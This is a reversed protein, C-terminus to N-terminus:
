ASGNRILARLKEPILLTVKGRSATLWGKRRMASLRRISTEWRTGAMRSLERHTVPITHGFSTKLRLLTYALRREVPAAALSIAEALHCMRTHYVALVTHAFPPHTTLLRTFEVKPICIATTETAAVASAFYVGSGVVASFGCLGDEPTVTYITVPTAQTRKVLYVWGWQILWIVEARRGEQFLTQGKHFRRLECVSAIRRLASAALGHFLPLRAIHDEIMVGM